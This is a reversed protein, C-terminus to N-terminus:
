KSQNFRKRCDYKGFFECRIYRIFGGFFRRRSEKTENGIPKAVGKILVGSNELGKFIKITDEM